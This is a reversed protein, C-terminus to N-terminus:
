QTTQTQQSTSLGVVCRCRHVVVVLVVVALILVAVVVVLLVVALVVSHRLFFMGLM